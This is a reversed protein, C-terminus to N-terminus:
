RAKIQGSDDSLVIEVRRNTQRGAATDNSAVPHAEGYGRSAVRTSAIGQRLLAVRVADARETSLTQNYADAGTSDTFGEVLVTRQPDANLVEVLQDVMRLGSPKLASRDVDFLVDGLTIVVGRPTQKANLEAMRAELLRNREMAMAAQRQAETADTRAAGATRQAEAAARQAAEAEQTRAQLQAATRAAGANAVSLEATKFNVTERVIFARQSAVYALHNVRAEDERNALAVNAANLADAAQRLETPAQNQSRPDAQVTRYDERAQDLRVNSLPTTSCGAAVALATLSLAFRHATKM